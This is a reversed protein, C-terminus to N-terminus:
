SPNFAGIARLLRLAALQANLTQAVLDVESATLQTTADGIDVQTAVGNNFNITTLNMNEQALRQQEQSKIRNGHASQLDLLAKRVEDRAKLATGEQNAVAEVVKADTERLNAERLGGDWITWSLGVTVAWAYNKNTFGKLNAYRVLGSAVLSPLYTLWVASHNREALETSQRAIQLDLRDQEAAKELATVEEGVKPEPPSVVDFDPERALLTAITQKMSALSREANAVDQESRARDIQARILGIRPLTGADVRTQADREHALNNELLRRQVALLEKLGVTGYYAQAVGFLIERRANAVSLAAIDVALYSNRIVAWLSPVLLAQTGTLQAGLQDKKQIVLDELGTPVLLLSTSAGPLPLTPPAGSPTVVGRAVPELAPNGAVDRIAYGTPMQLVADTDNRTYSGGLSVQPLYYSWAKHTLEQAQALRARAARLDTNRSEAQKIAEELSLVPLSPEAPAAPPQSLFLALAVISTM